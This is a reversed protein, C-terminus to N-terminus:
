TNQRIDPIEARDVPSLNEMYDLGKFCLAIVLHKLDLLARGALIKFSKLSLGSLVGIRPSLKFVLTKKLRLLKLFTPTNTVQLPM